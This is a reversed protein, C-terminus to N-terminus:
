IILALLFYVVLYYYLLFGIILSPLSLITLSGILIFLVAKYGGSDDDSKSGGPKSNWNEIAM